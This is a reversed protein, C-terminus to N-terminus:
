AARGRRPKRAAHKRALKWGEEFEADLKARTLTTPEPGGYWQWAKEFAAQRVAEATMEAILASVNGQHKEEALSKLARKTERDLSVGITETAGTRRRKRPKM